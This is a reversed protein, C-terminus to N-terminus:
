GEWKSVYSLGYGEKAMRDSISTQHFYEVIDKSEGELIEFYYTSGAPIAKLMPKPRNKAMDYGGILTHKGVVAAVLKVKFKDNGLIYEDEEKVEKPFWGKEFIAPTMLNLKFGRSIEDTAVLKLPYPRQSIEKYNAYKGEGGLKIVGKSKLEIGEFEIVLFLDKLRKLDVRYLRSDKSTGTKKDIGIGIKPEDSLYDSIRSIKINDKRGNIYDYMKNEEILGDKMTKIHEDYYLIYKLPNSNTYKNEMIKLPYVEYKKEKIENKMIKNPMDKLRVLDLPMNYYYGKNNGSGIRYFMRRIILKKTPDKETNLEKKEELQHFLEINESFYATRIAGYVTSMNPPFISNTWHNEGMTFPKGDRFFLTDLASIEIIM